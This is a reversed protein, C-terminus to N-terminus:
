LGGRTLRREYAGGGEEYAGRRTLGGRTRGGWHALYCQQKLVCSLMSWQERVAVLCIGIEGSLSKLHSIGLSLSALLNLRNQITVMHKVAFKKAVALSIQRAM